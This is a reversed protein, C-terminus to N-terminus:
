VRDRFGLVFKLLREASCTVYHSVQLPTFARRFEQKYGLGALVAEDSLKDAIHARAM